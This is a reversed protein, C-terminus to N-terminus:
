CLPDGAADRREDARRDGRRRAHPHSRPRGTRRASRHDRRLPLDIRHLARARRPRAGGAFARRRRLAPGSLAVRLPARSRDLARRLGVRLTDRRRSLAGARLGDAARHDGVAGRRPAGEFARDLARRRKARVGRFARRADVFVSVPARAEEPLSVVEAGEARVEVLSPAVDGTAVGLAYAVGDHMAVLDADIHLRITRRAGRADYLCVDRPDIARRRRARRTFPGRTRRTTSSWPVWRSRVQRTASCRGGRAIPKVRCWWARGRPVGACRAFVTFDVTSSAAMGRCRAERSSPGPARMQSWSRTERSRRAAIAISRSSVCTM